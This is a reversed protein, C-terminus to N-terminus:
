NTYTALEEENDQIKGKLRRIDKEMNKTRRSQRRATRAQSRAERAAQNAKRNLRKNTPDDSLRDTIKSSNNAERQAEQNEDVKKGEMEQLKSEMDSLKLKQDSLKEQLVLVSQRNRELKVSDIGGQGYSQTFLAVGAMLTLFYKIRMISIKCERKARKWTEGKPNTAKCGSSNTQSISYLPLRLVIM